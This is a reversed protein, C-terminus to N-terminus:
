AKTYPGKAIETLRASVDEILHRMLQFAGKAEFQDIEHSGLASLTAEMQKLVHAQADIDDAEQMTM